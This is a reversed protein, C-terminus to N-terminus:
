LVVQHLILEEQHVPDLLPCTGIPIKRTKINLVLVKSKSTKFIRVTNPSVQVDPRLWEEAQEKLVAQAEKARIKTEYTSEVVSEWESQITPDSIM